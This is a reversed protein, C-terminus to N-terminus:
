SCTAGQYVICGYTVDLIEKLMPTKYIVNQPNHRNEIYSNISDMPGPRYLAIVAIIDEINNPKLRAIVNRMGSSECQFIGDTKGSAFLEFVKKDDLPIKEIDFNHNKERIM